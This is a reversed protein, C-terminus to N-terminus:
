SRKFDDCIREEDVTVEHKDCVAYVDDLVTHCYYCFGCCKESAEEEKTAYRINM